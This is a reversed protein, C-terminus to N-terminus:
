GLATLLADVDAATNYLHFAARLNGARDSVEIGARALDAQREGLGPVSVIASGPAPLPEHGLTRLGAVFRAALALDHAHVRAVGLREVIGMAEAAGEYSFLPQATDFRRADPAPERVPGYTSAWPDAASLWGGLLPRLGGLDEPVVLFGVGHATGLWKYGVSATFDDEAADLPLWGAAQSVDVFTRAGHARAAARIAPLDALRGDASQVSSVAVLATGPRVEDAVRDLPVTRVRLRPRVHFPNVVSAFDGEATLVEAGEPLAAAVLAACTAVSTGAAVRSVPVGALRAFAARAATVAPMADAEGGYERREVAARIAEAASRALLGSSATNLHIRRPRYEEPALNEM